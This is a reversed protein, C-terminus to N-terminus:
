HRKKIFESRYITKGVSVFRTEYETPINNVPNSNYLDLSLDEIVYGNDVLTMLSYEFLGRNDTKMIIHNDNKFIHDYKNLFIPSTLRRNTHRKKPWPDSFNLYITDIEQKFVKDIDLADMLILKLNSLKEEELKQAVRVMVSDYKEIGIFNIHPYQKASNIIFDGKGTGIEIHLPAVTTFLDQYHRCYKEPELVIYPSKNIIDGAGKIKKLRM